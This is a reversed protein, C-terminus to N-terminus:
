FPPQDQNGAPAPSAAWPDSAPANFGGTNTATNSFGGQQPASFAGQQGFGGAQQQSQQPEVFAAPKFRLSLGVEEVDVVMTHRTEGQKDQYEQQRLRGTVMVRDGKRLSQTVHEALKRWASCSLFTPSGEVWDNQQKDWSRPNSVIRFNAVAVGNQTFRLEPDAVVNGVITIEIHGNAM